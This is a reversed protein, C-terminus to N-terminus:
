VTRRSGGSVKRPVRIHGVAWVRNESSRHPGPPALLALSEGLTVLLCASWLSVLCIGPNPQVDGYALELPVHPPLPSPGQGQGADLRV